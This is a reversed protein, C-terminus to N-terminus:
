RAPKDGPGQQISPEQSSGEPGFPTLPTLERTPGATSTNPEGSSGALVYVAAAAPGTNGAEDTARVEFVYRGASEDGLGGDVSARLRDVGGSTDRCPGVPPM